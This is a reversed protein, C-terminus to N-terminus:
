LNQKQEESGEFSFANFDSGESRDGSSEMSEDSSEPEFNEEPGEDKDDDGSRSKDLAKYLISITADKDGANAYVFVLKKVRVENLRNRRKTHIFDHIRWSRESAASSTPITYLRCALPALLPCTPAADMWWILPTVGDQKKRRRPPWRLKRAALTKLTEISDALDADVFDSVKKTHDLLFYIGMTETHVFDWKAQIAELNKTQVKKPEGDVNTTNLANTKQQCFQYYIGDLYLLSRAESTQEDDGCTRTCWLLPRMLPSVVIYNVVKVKGVSTWGDSVLAVTPEDRLRSSVAEMERKYEATLLCGSLAKRTPLYKEM